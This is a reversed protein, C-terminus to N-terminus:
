EVYAVVRLRATVIRWVVDNSQAEDKEEDFYGVDEENKADAAIRDGVEKDVCTQTLSKSTTQRSPCRPHRTASARRISARPSLPNSPLKKEHAYTPVHRSVLIIDAKFATKIASHM